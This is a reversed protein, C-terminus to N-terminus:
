ENGIFEEEVWMWIDYLVNEVAEELYKEHISDQGVSEKLFERTPRVDITVRMPIDLVDINIIKKM